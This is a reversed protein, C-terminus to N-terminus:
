QLMSSLHHERLVLIGSLYYYNINKDKDDTEKHAGLIYVNLFHERERGSFTSFINIVLRTRLPM